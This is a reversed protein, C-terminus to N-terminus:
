HNMEGLIDRKKGKKIQVRKEPKKTAFFSIEIQAYNINKEKRNSIKIQADSDKILEKIMMLNVNVDQPELNTGSFYDITDQAFKEDANSLKFYVVGGLAKSRIIIKKQDKHEIARDISESCVSYLLQDVSERNGKVWVEDALDFDIIVGSSFAKEKLKNLTVNFSETLNTSNLNNETKENAFNMQDNTVTSLDEIYVKNTNSSMLLSELDKILEYTKPLNWYNTVKAVFRDIQILSKENKSILETAEAEFAEVAKQNKVNGRRSVLISGLATIALVILAWQNFKLNQNAENIIKDLSDSIENRYVELTEYKSIINSSAVNVQEKQALGVIGIAKENFWYTDTSFSNLKKGIDANDKLNTEYFKIADSLCDQTTTTFDNKVYESVFDGVLLSTLTQNVRSFCTNIGTKLEHSNQYLALSKSGSYVLAGTVLTLTSALIILKQKQFISKMTQNM